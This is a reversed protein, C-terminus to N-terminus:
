DEWINWFCSKMFGKWTAQNTQHVRKRTHFIQSKCDVKSSDNRESMKKEIKGQYALYEVKCFNKAHKWWKKQKM